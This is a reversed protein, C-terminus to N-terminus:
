KKKGVSTKFYVREEDVFGKLSTMKM